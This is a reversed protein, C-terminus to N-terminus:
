EEAKFEALISILAFVTDDDDLDVITEDQIHMYVNNVAKSLLSQVDENGSYNDMLYVLTEYINKTDNFTVGGGQIIDLIANVYAIIISRSIIITGIGKKM